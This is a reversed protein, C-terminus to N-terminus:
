GHLDLHLARGATRSFCLSWLECMKPFIVILITIQVRLVKDVVQMPKDTVKLVSEDAFYQHM